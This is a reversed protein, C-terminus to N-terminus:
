ISRLPPVFILITFFLELILRGKLLDPQELRWLGFLSCFRKGSFTEGRRDLSINMDMATQRINEWGFRAALRGSKLNNAATKRRARFLDHVMIFYPIQEGRPADARRRFRIVSSVVQPAPYFAGGGIDGIKEIEARLRCVLSFASYTKKGPSATMRQAVEKQVTFVAVPPLGDEEILDGIMVSGSSYPLNGVMRDPVGEAALIERHTTLFDGDIIRLRGSDVQEAFLQKLLRILGHDIEFVTLLCDSALLQHTMSGIGPGIEWVRSGKQLELATLIRNRHM